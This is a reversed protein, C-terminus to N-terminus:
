AEVYVATISSSGSGATFNVHVLTNATGKAWGAPNMPMMRSNSWPGLMRTGASGDDIQITTSDGIEVDLALLIIQKGVVASILTGDATGSFNARKVTLVTTDLMVKDVQLTASITDTTEDMAPASTVTVDNNAGLNVLLGGSDASVLSASGDASYALKVVPMHGRTAHEDTVQKTSDPPGAPSTSTLTIDDAM